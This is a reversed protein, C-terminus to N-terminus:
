LFRDPTTAWHYVAQRACTISQSQDRSYVHACMWACMHLSMPKIGLLVTLLFPLLYFLFVSHKRFQPDEPHERVKPSTRTFTQSSTSPPDCYAHLCPAQLRPETWWQFCFLETEGNGSAQDRFEVPVTCSSVYYPRWFKLIKKKFAKQTRGGFLM